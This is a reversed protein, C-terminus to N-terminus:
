FSSSSASLLSCRVYDGKETEDMWDLLLHLRWQSRPAEPVDVMWTMEEWFMGYIYRKLEEEIETLFAILSSTKFSLGCLEVLLEGPGAGLEARRKMNTYPFVDIEKSDV